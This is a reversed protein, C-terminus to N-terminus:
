DIDDVVIDGENIEEDDEDSEEIEEVKEMRNKYMNNYDFKHNPIFKNENITRNIKSIVKTNVKGNDIIQILDTFHFPRMTYIETISSEGGHTASVISEHYSGIEIKKGTKYLVLCNYMRLKIYGELDIFMGLPLKYLPRDLNPKGDWSPRNERDSIWEYLREQRVLSEILYEAIYCDIIPMEGVKRGGYLIAQFGYKSLEKFDDDDEISMIDNQNHCISNLLYTAKQNTLKSLKNEDDKHYKKMENEVWKKEFKSVVKRSPLEREVDRDALRRPVIDIRRDYKISPYTTSVYVPPLPPPNTISIYEFSENTLDPYNERDLPPILKKLKPTNQILRLPSKDTNCKIKKM